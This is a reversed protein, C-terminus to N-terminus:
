NTAKTQTLARSAEIVLGSGQLMIGQNLRQALELNMMSVIKMANYTNKGTGPLGSLDQVNATKGTTTSFASTVAARSPSTDATQSMAGGDNVIAQRVVKLGLEAHAIGATAYWQQNKIQTQSIVGRQTTTLKSNLCISYGCSSTNKESSTAEQFYELGGLILSRAGVISSLDPAVNIAEIGVNQLAAVQFNLPLELGNEPVFEMQDYGNNVAANEYTDIPDPHSEDMGTWVDKIHKMTDLVQYEAVLQLPDTNIAKMYVVNGGNWFTMLTTYLLGVAGLITGTWGTGAMVPTAKLMLAVAACSLLKKKLKM